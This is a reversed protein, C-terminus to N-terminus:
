ERELGRYEGAGVVEVVKRRGAVCDGPVAETVLRELLRDELEGLVEAETRLEAAFVEAVIHADDAQGSVVPGQRDGDGDAARGVPLDDGADVCVTDEDLLEFVIWCSKQGRHTPDLLDFGAVDGGDVEI